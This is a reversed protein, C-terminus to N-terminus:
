NELWEDSKPPELVWRMARILVHCGQGPRLSTTLFFTFLNSFCHFHACKRGAGGQFHALKGVVQHIEASVFAWPLAIILVHRGQGHRLNKTSLFTFLKFFCHFYACKRGQFDEFHALKGVV